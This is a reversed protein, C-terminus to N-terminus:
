ISATDPKKHGEEMENLSQKNEVLINKEITFTRERSPNLSDGATSTLTDGEISYGLSFGSSREDWYNELLSDEAAKDEQSSPLMFSDGTVSDVAQIQLVNDFREEDMASMEAISFNDPDTVHQEDYEGHLSAGIKREEGGVSYVFISPPAVSSAGSQDMYSRADSADPYYSSSAYSAYDFNRIPEEHHLKLGKKTDRKPSKLKFAKFFKSKPSPLLVDSATNQRTSLDGESDGNQKPFNEAEACGLKRELSEGSDGINELQTSKPTNGGGKLDGSKKRQRRKAYVVVISVVVLLALGGFVAGVIVSVDSNSADSKTTSSIEVGDTKNTGSGEYYKNSGETKNTGSYEHGTNNTGPAALVLQNTDTAQATTKSYTVSDINAFTGELSSNASRKIGQLYLENQFATETVYDLVETYLPTFPVSSTFNAYGTYKLVSIYPITTGKQLLTKDNTLKVAVDAGSMDARRYADALYKETYASLFDVDKSSLYDKGANETKNSFQFTLTFPSLNITASSVKPKLYFQLQRYGQRRQLQEISSLRFYQPYSDPRSISKSQIVSIAATMWWAVCFLIIKHMLEPSKLAETYYKRPM